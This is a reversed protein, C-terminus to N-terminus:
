VRGLRAMDLQPREGPGQTLRRRVMAARHALDPFQRCNQDGVDDAIRAEGARVLLAASPDVEWRFFAGNV